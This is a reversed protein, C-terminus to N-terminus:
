SLILAVAADASNFGASFGVERQRQLYLKDGVGVVSISDLICYLANSLFIYQVLTPANDPGQVRRCRAPCALRRLPHLRKALSRTGQNRNFFLAQWAM